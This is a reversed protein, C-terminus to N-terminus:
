RSKRRSGTSQHQGTRDGNGASRPARAGVHRGAQVGDKGAAARHFGRQDPPQLGATRARADDRAIARGLRLRDGIEVPGLDAVPVAGRHRAARTQQSPHRDFASRQPDHLPLYPAGPRMHVGMVEGRRHLGPGLHALARRDPVPRAIVPPQVVATPKPQRPSGPRHHVAGPPRDVGERHFQGGFAPGADRPRCQGPGPPLRSQHDFAHRIRRIAGGARAKPM